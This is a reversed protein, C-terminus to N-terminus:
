RIPVVCGSNAFRASGLRNNMRTLQQAHSVKGNLVFVQRVTESLAENLIKAEKMPVFDLVVTVM